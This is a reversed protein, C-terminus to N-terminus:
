QPGRAFIMHKAEYKAAQAPARNNVRIGRRAIM